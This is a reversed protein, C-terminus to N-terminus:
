DVVEADLVLTGIDGAAGQDGQKWFSMVQDVGLMKNGAARAVVVALQAVRFDDRWLGFPQKEYLQEFELLHREPMAEIEDPLRGLALCLM